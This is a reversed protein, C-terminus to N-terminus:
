LGLWYNLTYIILVYVGVFNCGPLLVFGTLCVLLCMLCACWFAILWLSLAVGFEVFWLWCLYVTWGILM